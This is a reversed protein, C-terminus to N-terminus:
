GQGHEDLWKAVDVGMFPIGKSFAMGKSFIIEKNDIDIACAVACHWNGGADKKFADTPRQEKSAVEQLVLEDVFGAERAIAEEIRVASEKSGYPGRVVGGDWLEEIRWTIKGEIQAVRYTKKGSQAGEGAMDLEELGTLIERHGAVLIARSGPWATEL